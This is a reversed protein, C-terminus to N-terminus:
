SHTHYSFIVTPIKMDHHMSRLIYWTSHACSFQATNLIHASVFLISVPSDRIIDCTKISLGTHSWLSDVCVQLDQSLLNLHSIYNCLQDLVYLPWIDCHHIISHHKTHYDALNSDHSDNGKQWYIQINKNEQQEQLWYYRM